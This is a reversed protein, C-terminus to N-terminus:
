GEVSAVCEKTHIEIHRRIVADISYDTYMDVIRQEGDDDKTFLITEWYWSAPDLAASSKRYISSIRRGPYLRTNLSFDHAFSENGEIRDNVGLLRLTSETEAAGDTALATRTIMSANSIPLLDAIRTSAATDGSHYNVFVADQSAVSKVCGIEVSEPDGSRYVVYEGVKPQWGEKEKRTDAM